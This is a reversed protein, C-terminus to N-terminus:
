ANNRRLDLILEVEGSPRKIEQAIQQVSQGSDALRYIAAHRDDVPEPDFGASSSTGIPPPYPNTRGNSADSTGQGRMAALHKTLTEIKEDAERLLLELKTARTDLQATIQRAMESLDVLLSEMQRETSRQQALSTKFPSTALPDKPKRKPRLFLLYLVTASVVAIAAWYNAPLTQGLLRGAPWDLRSEHLMLLGADM